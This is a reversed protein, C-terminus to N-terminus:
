INKIAKMESINNLIYIGYINSIYKNSKSFGLQAIAVTALENSHSYLLM